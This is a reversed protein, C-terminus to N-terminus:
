ALSRRKITVIMCCADVISRWVPFSNSKSRRLSQKVKLLINAIFNTFSKNTIITEAQIDQSGTTTIQWVQRKVLRTPSSSKSMLQLAINICVNHQGLNNQLKWYMNQNSILPKTLKTLLKIFNVSSYNKNRKGIGQQM